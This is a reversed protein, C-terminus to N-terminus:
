EMEPEAEPEVEPEEMQEVEPEVDAEQEPAAEPEEIQEIEPEAEPEQEPAAEPEEIQEVEPEAEPEQEPATEPEEIQEVEPVDEPEEIQEVEPEVEPEQERATEPEQIQEIEPEAEQEQAPEVEAEAEPEQIQEVEPEAESVPTEVQEVDLDVGIDIGLEDNQGSVEILDGSSADELGIDDIEPIELSSDFVDTETQESDSARGNQLVITYSKSGTFVALEIENFSRIVTLRYDKKGKEITLCQGEKGNHEIVGLDVVDSVKIPLGARKLLASLRIKSSADRLDCSFLPGFGEPDESLAMAAKAVEEATLTPDNVLRLNFMGDVTYVTLRAEAFLPKLVILYDDEVEAIAVFLSMDIGTNAGNNQLSVSQIDKLQRVPLELKVILDSLLLRTEDELRYAYTKGDGAANSALNNSLSLDGLQDLADDYADALSTDTELDEAFAFPEPNIELIEASALRTQAANIDDVVLGLTNSLLCVVVVMSFLRKAFRRNIWGRWPGHRRSELDRPARNSEINRYDKM